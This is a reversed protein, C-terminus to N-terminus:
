FGILRGQREKDDWVFEELSELVEWSFSFLWFAKVLESMVGLLREM